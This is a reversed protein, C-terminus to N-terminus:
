EDELKWFLGTEQSGTCGQVHDEPAETGPSDMAHSKTRQGRKGSSMEKLRAQEALSYYHTLIFLM